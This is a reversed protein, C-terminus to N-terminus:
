GEKGREGDKRGGSGLSEEGGGKMGGGGLRGEEEGWREDGM